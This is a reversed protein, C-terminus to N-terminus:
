KILELFLARLKDSSNKIDFRTAAESKFLEFKDKLEPHSIAYKMARTLADPDHRDVVITPTDAVTERLALCDNAILPVGACLVECAVLGRGEVVSPMLITDCGQMVPALNPNFPLFRFLGNIGKKEIRSKYEKEMDGHGVAVVVFDRISDASSNLKEVADIIFHFGKEPELRGFFGFVFSNNAIGATKKLDEGAGPYEKSFSEALIGSEIATWRAKSKLLSPFTEKTYEIMDNSVGHFVTVNKMAIMFLFNKLWGLKGRFFKDTLISQITFVHPIRFIWSVMAVHFATIFGQSNILDYNGKFLAAAVSYFLVNKGLFPMAWLIKIGEAKMDEELYEKEFAPNALLTIDYEDKPFYHYNYKIFTRLGGWPWLCVM